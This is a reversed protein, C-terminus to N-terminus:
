TKKLFLAYSEHWGMKNVCKTVCSEGVRERQVFIHMFENKLVYVGFVYMDVVVVITSTHL